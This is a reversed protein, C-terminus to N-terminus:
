PRLIKLCVINFHPKGMDNLWVAIENYVSDLVPIIIALLVKPLFSLFTFYGKEKIVMDWWQQPFPFTKKLSYRSLQVEENGIFFAPEVKVVFLFDSVDSVFMQGLYCNFYM